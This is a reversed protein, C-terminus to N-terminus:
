RRKALIVRDNGALDQRCVIGKYNGNKELLKIVSEKQNYGIELALMGDQKLFSTSTKALIRYFDLGDEGGDLAMKPEQQVEQELGLMTETEIYPPNSVIVDFTRDIMEQFMNSHILKVQKEVGIEKANRTAVELAKRSVDVMSVKANPLYKALSIGIAGSGTCMDLIQISEEQGVRNLIEEVLIETDPRPILVNEDVYFELKMFAQKHTIYQMPYGNAIKKIAEEYHKQINSNVEEEKHIMLYSKDKKLFYSLIIKAILNADEKLELKRRGQELLEQIKM